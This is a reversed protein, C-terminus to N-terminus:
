RECYDTHYISLHVPFKTVMKVLHETPMCKVQSSFTITTHKQLQFVMTHLYIPFFHKLHCLGPLYFFFTVRHMSEKWQRCWKNAPTQLYTIDRIVSMLIWMVKRKIDIELTYTTILETFYRYMAQDFIGFHNLAKKGADNNVLKHHKCM